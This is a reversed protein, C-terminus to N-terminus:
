LKEYVIAFTEEAEHASHTWIVESVGSVRRIPCRERSLIERELEAYDASPSRVGPRHRPRSPRGADRRRRIALRLKKEARYRRKRYAEPNEDDPIPRGVLRAVALERDNVPIDSLATVVENWLEANVDVIKSTLDERHVLAEDTDERKLIESVAAVPFKRIVGDVERRSFLPNQRETRGHNLNRRKLLWVIRGDIGLKARTNNLYDYTPNHSLEELLIYFRSVLEDFIEDLKKSAVGYNKFQLRIDTWQYADRRCLQAAQTISPQWSYFGNEVCSVIGAHVRRANEEIESIDEETLRPSPRLPAAAEPSLSWLSTEDTRRASVCLGSLTETHM